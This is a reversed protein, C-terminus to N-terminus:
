VELAGVQPYDHFKAGTTAAAVQHLRTQYRLVIYGDYDFFQQESQLIQM